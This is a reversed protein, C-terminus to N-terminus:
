GFSHRGFCYRKPISFSFCRSSVQQVSRSVKWKWLKIEGPLFSHDAILTRIWIEEFELDEYNIVLDMWLTKPDTCNNGGKGVWQAEDVYDKMEIQCEKLRDLNYGYKILTCVTFSPFALRNISKYAVDSVEPNKLYKDFCSYGRFAM